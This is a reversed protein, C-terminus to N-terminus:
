GKKKMVKNNNQTKERPFLLLKTLFGFKWNEKNLEKRQKVKRGRVGERKEKIKIEYIKYIFIRM